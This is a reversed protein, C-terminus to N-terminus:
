TIFNEVIEAFSNNELFIYRLVQYVKYDDNSYREINLTKLFDWYTPLNKQAEEVKSIKRYYELFKDDLSGLETLVKEIFQKNIKYCSKFYESEETENFFIYIM